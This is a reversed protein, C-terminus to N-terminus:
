DERESCLRTCGDVEDYPHLLINTSIDDGFVGKRKQIFCSSRFIIFPLLHFFLASYFVQLLLLDFDFDVKIKKTKM